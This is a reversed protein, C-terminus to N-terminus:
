LLRSSTSLNRSICLSSVSVWSPFALTIWVVPDNWYIYIFNLTGERFFYEVFSSCFSGGRRVPLWSHCAWLVRWVWHRCASAGGGLRPGPRPRQQGGSCVAGSARALRRTRGALRRRGQKSAVHHTCLVDGSDVCVSTGVRVCECTWCPWLYLIAVPFDAANRWILM